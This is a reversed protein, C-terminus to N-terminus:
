KETTSTDVTYAITRRYWCDKKTLSQRFAPLNVDNPIFQPEICIGAYPGYAERGAADDLWNGTYLQFGPADSSITLTIDCTRFSGCLVQAVKDNGNVEDNKNMLLINGDVSDREAGDRMACPMNMMPPQTVYHHDYGRYLALEKTYRHLQQGMRQWATFDFPSGKVTVISGDPIQPRGFPAYHTAYLRVEHDLIDGTGNLNFYSHNTINVVSDETTRYYYTLRLEKGYLGAMMYVEADGPFGDVEGPMTVTLCVSDDADSMVTSVGPPLKGQHWLATGLGASGSHLLHTGDNPSFSYTKGNITFCADAIRNAVRGVTAGLSAGDHLYGELSPFGLVINRALPRVIFDTLRAGYDIFRVLIEENSLEYGQVTRGSEDVGYIYQRM